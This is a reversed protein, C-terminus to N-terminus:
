TSLRGRLAEVLLGMRSGLSGKIMVVDGACVTELLAAELGAANNAYAGQREEPLVEFLSRMYPGCAFVVDVGAADVPQLLDSHLRPSTNGLELMDGLVAIRRPFDTRPITDLSALAARMSAPNANYSEDVLVVQGDPLAFVERAGRGTQAHFGALAGAGKKVDAGCVQIAALAGLSNMALHAGPSGIRYTIENGCIDATVDSGQADKVLAVLRAGAKRSEGFSIIHAVGAKAACEKLLSFHRNDVNLVATGGSELGEFIEAKALAIQEVSNFFELHVPEVTTILAVHPRIMKVLATIEGPHNMGVEFVGFRSDRTMNALSLPVGWHNNYSKASAHVSGSVSLALHLGEKTSTKGVSGTVAIISADSRGRAARGLAELGKLTDTVRVLPGSLGVDAGEAVLACSAGAKFAEAVYDHGDLNDGRIAVYLAGPELTRTDISVSHIALDPAADSQANGQIAAVVDAYTWLPEKM